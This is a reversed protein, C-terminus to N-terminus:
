FQPDLNAKEINDLAIEMEAQPAKRGSGRDNAATVSLVIGGATVERLRGRWHRNGAIPTFTRVKLLSGAFREFDARSRLRRDLGPSSVELTYEGGRVLDEVDLLVSFDRSFSACDDHTIWSLHELPLGARPPHEQLTGEGASDEGGAQGQAGQAEASAQGEVAQRALLARREPSKEIVVRLVRNRGGGLSEIEVIELGLSGAVRDAVGRIRELDLAM